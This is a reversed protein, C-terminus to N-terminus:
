GEKKRKFAYILGGTIGPVAAWGLFLPFYLEAEFCRCCDFEHPDRESFVHLYKRPKKTGEIAWPVCVGTIVFAAVGIWLCIRQRKNM